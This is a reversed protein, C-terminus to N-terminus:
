HKFPFCSEDGLSLLSQTIFTLPPKYMVPLDASYFYCPIPLGQPQKELKM